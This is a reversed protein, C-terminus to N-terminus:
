DAAFLPGFPDAEAHLPSQELAALLTHIWVVLDLDTEPRCRLAVADPTRGVERAILRLRKAVRVAGRGLSV